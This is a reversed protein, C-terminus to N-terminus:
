RDILVRRKNEEDPDQIFDRAEKATPLTGIVDLYARRVFVADSCLVPQLNLQRLREFVLKDLQSEAAPPEPNEFVNTVPTAARSVAAIIVVAAVFLTKM